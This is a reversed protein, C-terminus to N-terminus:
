PQIGATALIEKLLQNVEGARNYVMFHTGKQIPLTRKNPRYPLIVDATGHIHKMKAPIYHNDWKLIRPVAWKVFVPDANLMVKSLLVKDEKSQAGLLWATIFNRHHYFYNPVIRYIGTLGALKFWFPLGERNTVSSILITYAPKLFKNMEIAMMGGLSLGVLLFPQSEDIGEALRRAYAPFSENKLPKLWALHHIEFGEPLTTKLFMHEDAGLGSMFYVNM